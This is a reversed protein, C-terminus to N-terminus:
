RMPFNGLNFGDYVEKWVSGKGSLGDRITACMEKLKSCMKKPDKM